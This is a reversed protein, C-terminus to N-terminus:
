TNQCKSSCGKLFQTQIERNTLVGDYQFKINILREYFEIPDESGEMIVESLDKEADFHTLGDRPLFKQRLAKLIWWARGKPWENTKSNRVLSLLQSHKAFAQNLVVIAHLNKKVFAKQKKKTVENDSYVGEGSPFYDAALNPEFAIDCGKLTAYALLQPEFEVYNGKYRPVTFSSKEEGESDSM